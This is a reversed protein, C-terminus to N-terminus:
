FLGTNILTQIRATRSKNSGLLSSFYIVKSIVFFQIVKKKKKYVIPIFKNSFFRTFSLLPKRVKFHMHSIIHELLLDDSFSIGLYVYSSVKSIANMGLYFTPDSYNPLSQFNMPKIVMTACKEIGFTMENLNAWKHVKKLLKELNKALAKSSTYLNCLFDFCKGRVGNHYLKTLINFIPVSDYAKKLDLFAVYTFKVKDDSDCLASNKKKKLCPLSYV